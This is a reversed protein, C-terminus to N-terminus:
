HVDFKMYILPILMPCTFDHSFSISSYSFSFNLLSMLWEVGCTRSNKLINNNLHHFYSSLFLVSIILFLLWWDSWVLVGLNKLINNNMLITIWTTPPPAQSASFAIFFYFPVSTEILLVPISNSFPLILCKFCCKLREPWWPSGAVGQILPLWVAAEWFWFLTLSLFGLLARGVTSYIGLSHWRDGM